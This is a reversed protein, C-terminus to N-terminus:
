LQWLWPIATASPHNSQPFIGVFIRNSSALALETLRILMECLIDRIIQAQWGISTSSSSSRITVRAPDGESCNGASDAKQVATMRSLASLNREEVQLKDEPKMVLHTSSDKNSVAGHCGHNVRLEPKTTSAVVLHAQVKL